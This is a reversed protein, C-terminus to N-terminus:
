EGVGLLTLMDAFDHGCAGAATVNIAAFRQGAATPKLQVGIRCTQRAPISRGTCTDSAIVYDAAHTGVLMPASPTAPFDTNNTWLDELIPSTAGVKVTQFDLFGAMLPFVDFNDVNSQGSLATGAREGATGKVVLEATAAQEMHVKPVFRIQVVCTAGPALAKGGCGDTEVRFRDPFAGELAVQLATSSSGGGNSVTLVAPMASECAFPTPGFLFASMDIALAAPDRADALSQDAGAEMATSLDADTPAAADGPAVGDPSATDTGAADPSTGIAADSALGAAADPAKSGGGSCALAAAAVLWFVM